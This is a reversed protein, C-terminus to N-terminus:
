DDFEIEPTDEITSNIEPANPPLPPEEKPTLGNKADRHLGELHAHLSDAQSKTLQNVFSAPSIIRPWLTLAHRIAQPTTCNFKSLILDFFAKRDLPSLPSEKPTPVIKAADSAPSM